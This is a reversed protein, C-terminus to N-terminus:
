EAQTHSVSVSRRLIYTKTDTSKRHYIKYLLNYYLQTAPKRKVKQMVEKGRKGWIRNESYSVNNRYTNFSETIYYESLSSLLSSISLWLM